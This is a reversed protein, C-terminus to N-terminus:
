FNLTENEVSCGWVSSSKITSFQDLFKISQIDIDRKQLLQAAAKLSASKLGLELGSM